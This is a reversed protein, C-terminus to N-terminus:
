PVSQVREARVTALFGVVLYMLVVALVAFKVTAFVSALGPWPQETGGALVVLLAVNEIADCAAAVVALRAMAPGLKGVWTGAGARAALMTCAAALVVAYLILLGFDLYLQQRAAAIWDEGLYALLYSARVPTRMMEFEVIDVGQQAM